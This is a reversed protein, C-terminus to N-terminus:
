ATATTSRADAQLPRDQGGGRAPPAGRRWRRGGPTPRWAARRGCPCQAGGRKVVTHGIEGAAGRGLWPKGDLVLGGGVGTGWFVGILSDYESAPASSSSPKPRWRSTTASGCRPASRRPWPRASRSAARGALCTAPAPSPVPRRTSTAPRASASARWNARAQPGGGRGGRAPRGGDRPRRGGAWGLDADAHRAEGLVKGDPDVIATQIKTGGLDIGGRPRQIAM